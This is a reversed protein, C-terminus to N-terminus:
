RSAFDELVSVVDRLAEPHAELVHVIAERIRGWAPSALIRSEPLNAAEGTLKYLREVARSATELLKARETPSMTPDHEADHRFKRIHAVLAEAEPRPAVLIPGQPTEGGEVGPVGSVVGRASLNAPAPPTQMKGLLGGATSPAPDVIKIEEAPLDWWAKVIGFTKELVTRWDDSPIRHGRSWNHVVPYSAGTRSAVQQLSHGCNKLAVAGRSLVPKAPAKKM